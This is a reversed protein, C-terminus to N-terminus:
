GLQLRTCRWRGQHSEARLAVARVRRGLQLTASIEAIGPRPESARVSRVTAAHTWHRHRHEIARHFDTRLGHAISPSLLSVLQQLPRRGGAVEVIGVLLRRAWLAPDPLDGRSVPLTFNAPADATRAFPLPRDHGGLAFAAQGDLEDDFPPERRPAPRVRAPSGTPTSAPSIPGLPDHASDTLLAHTV